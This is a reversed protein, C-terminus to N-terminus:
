RGYSGTLSATARREMREAIVVRIRRDLTIRPHWLMSVRAGRAAGSRPAPWGDARACSWGSASVGVYSLERGRPAALVVEALRVLPSQRHAM